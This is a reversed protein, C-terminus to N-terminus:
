ATEKKELISFLVGGIILITGFVFNIDIGEGLFMWGLMVSVMPQVPYFLSCTGAEIISLSKNWFVYALATCVLGMYLLSLIVSWEFQVNPTIILECISVPLTCAAAVLMSYTTIQSAAYKQTIQRVIVSVFSWLIVSFVSFLIGLVQGGGKAGGIIVYVGAVASIVCIVKKVTLKEKLIIAAFVMITIPNMSNVLSAMSANSLKIGILQAGVSLFYGIFGILFIYKLDQREIKKPKSKKLMFLLTIGAIFYRLFLVTIVPVKGLVFKGVVYLSGWACFTVILYLYAVKKNTMGGNGWEM